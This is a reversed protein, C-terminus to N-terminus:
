CGPLISVGPGTEAWQFFDCQKGQQFSCTYFNRGNNPGLKLVTRMLCRKGHHCSPFDLDAWQLLPPFFLTTEKSKFKQLFHFFFGLCVLKNKKRRTVQFFNCKNERPLSCSYFQRGKNEGEKHVVRLVSPRRHSTCCPPGLSVPAAPNTPRVSASLSSVTKNNHFINYIFVWSVGTM